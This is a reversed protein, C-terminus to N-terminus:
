KILYDLAKDKNNDFKVLAASIQSEDFGLDLLEGQPILHEIIKKDDIGCLSIVKAVRELPFGMSSIRQALHKEPATLEQFVNNANSLQPSQQLEQPPSQEATLALAQPENEHHSHLRARRKEAQQLESKLERLIDPVSRSKADADQPQLLANAVHSPGIPPLHTPTGYGNAYAHQLYNHNQYQQLQHQPYFHQNYILQQQHVQPPQQQQQPTNYVPTPYMTPIDQADDCHLQFNVSDLTAKTEALSTVALELKVPAEENKNEQQEQQQQQEKVQDDNQGTAQTNQTLQTQHLVQALIDLDNITKLEINDFPTSNMNYEFDAYNLSSNRKHHAVPTTATTGSLITPQLIDNFNNCSNISKPELQERSEATNISKTTAATTTAASTAPAPSSSDGEAIEEDDDSDSSLDAASPYEVAGLMEKQKAELARQRAQKRQEQRGHRAQQQQHRMRRWQQCKSLVSRELQFDYQYAADELLYNASGHALRNAITQPLQYVLPPPKYRDVIKVPVDDM